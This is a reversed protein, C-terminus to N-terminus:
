RRCEQVDWHEFALAEVRVLDWDFVIGLDLSVEAVGGRKPHLIDSPLSEAPTRADSAVLVM